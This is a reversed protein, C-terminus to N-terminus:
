KLVIRIIDDKVEFSHNINNNIFYQQLEKITPYDQEGIFCRADDILIIHPLQQTMIQNLEEWIPCETNGKATKGGSYHGDLWFIVPETIRKLILGLETTSDGFLLHVNGYKKFRRVARNYFYSSLEISYITRFYNMQAFVMDGYYTGTEVLVNYNSQKQYARIARKKVAHPPPVPRGKKEWKRYDVVMRKEEYWDVLSKPSADKIIRLLYGLNM